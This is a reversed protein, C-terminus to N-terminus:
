GRQPRADLKSYAKIKEIFQAARYAIEGFNKQAVLHPDVIEAGVAVAVAGAQLFSELTQLDVGGAPILRLDQCPALIERLYEPGGLSGPFLKILAAGEQRLTYIETPTWGGPIGLVGRARCLPLFFSSRIPSFLFTVGADLAAKAAHEEIATGAGLCFDYRRLRQLQVMADPTNLAVELVRIGVERLAGAVGDLADMPVGRLVIILKSETIIRTTTECSM